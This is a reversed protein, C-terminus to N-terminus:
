PRVKRRGRWCSWPDHAEVLNRAVAFVRFVVGTPRFGCLLVMSGSLSPGQFCRSGHVDVHGWPVACAVWIHIGGLLIIWPCECPRGHCPPLVPWLCWCLGESCYSRLDLYPGWLYCHLSGSSIHSGSIAPECVVHSWSLLGSWLSGGRVRFHNRGEM